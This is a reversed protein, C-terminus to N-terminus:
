RKIKIDGMLTEVDKLLKEAQERTEAIVKQGEAQALSNPGEPKSGELSKLLDKLKERYRGLKFTLKDRTNKGEDPAYLVGIVAGTVVGACFGVAVSAAKNM